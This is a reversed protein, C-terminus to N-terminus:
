INLVFSVSEDVTFVVVFVVGWAVELISAM